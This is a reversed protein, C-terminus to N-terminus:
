CFYKFQSKMIMINRVVITQHDLKPAVIQKEIDNYEDDEEDDSEDGDDESNGLHKKRRYKKIKGRAPLILMLLGSIAIFVGAFYFAYDYNDNLDSIWGALPPGILNAIGQVLLLLGYANTFRDLTILEVLIISTLAYNAAIFM